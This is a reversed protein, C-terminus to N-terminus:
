RAMGYRPHRGRGDPRPVGLANAVADTHDFMGFFLVGLGADIAAYQLAMAAFSGDVLWYPTAWAEPGAGLGTRKKDDESYRQLYALPDGWVTIIVPASLLSLFRFGARREPALTVDWYRATQEAGELVVLDFGQTNGASPVRRGQDLVHDLVESPVPRDLFTRTVRRRRVLEAFDM